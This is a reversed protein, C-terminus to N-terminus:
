IIAEEPPLYIEWVWSLGAAAGLCLNQASGALPAIYGFHVSAPMSSHPTM